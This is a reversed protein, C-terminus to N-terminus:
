MNYLASCLAKTVFYKLTKGRFKKKFEKNMKELAPMKIVAVDSSDM